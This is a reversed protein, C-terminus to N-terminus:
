RKTCNTCNRMKHPISVGMNFSKRWSLPRKAILKDGKAMKFYENRDLNDSVDNFGKFTKQEHIVGYKNKTLCYKKKPALLLGYFM